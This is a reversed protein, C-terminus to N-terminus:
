LVEKRRENFIFNFLYNRSIDSKFFGPCPNLDIVFIEDNSELIDFSFVELLFKAKILSTIHIIKEDVVEKEKDFVKDFVSYYKREVGNSITTEFYYDKINHRKLVELAESLTNLKLTTGEHKNEKLYFSQPTEDKNFIHPVNIGIEKMIIQLDKKKLKNNFFRYNIVNSPCFEDYDNILLYNLNNDIYFSVNVDILNNTKFKEIHGYYNLTQPIVLTLQKKGTM